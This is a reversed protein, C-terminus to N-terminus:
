PLMAIEGEPDLHKPRWGLERRARTSSLQQDLAYGRAWEGLEAAIADTSVIQPAQHPTCFRKAFARAIRGVALGEVAAGIYSSGAPARELALVYLKALDESHVLPWRIQESEVLQIADREVAESAFRRFVGAEPTYVMAPHIVIGDVELSQLIRTLQPVMWAFAPLPCFPTEETAVEDGTAGFLWCGGTYVFRPKNPQAALAPLLGDLLRADIAGMDTDFDCAAHIVADLRPLKAAWHTPASIDGAIPTAGFQSLKAASIDSRALAWVDHGRNILERVIPSGIAGTGGLIFVRMDHEGICFKGAGVPIQLGPGM